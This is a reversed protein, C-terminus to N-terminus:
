QGSDKDIIMGEKDARNMDNIRKPLNRGMTGVIPHFGQEWCEWGRKLKRARLLHLSMNWMIAPDERGKEKVSLDLATEYFPLAELTNRDGLLDAKIRHIVPENPFKEVLNNIEVLSEDNRLESRLASARSVLLMKDEPHDKLGDDVVDM